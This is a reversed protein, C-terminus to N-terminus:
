HREAEGGNADDIWEVFRGERFTTAFLRGSGGKGYPWYYTDGHVTPQGLWFVVTAISDGPAVRDRWRTPSAWHGCDDFWYCVRSVCRSEMLAYKGGSFECPWRALGLLRGFRLEEAALLLVVLLGLTLVIRKQKHRVSM